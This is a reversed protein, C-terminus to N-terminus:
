SLGLRERMNRQCGWAESSEPEQWIGTQEGSVVDVLSARGRGLAVQEKANAYTNVTCHGKCDHDIGCGCGSGSWPNTSRHLWRDLGQRKLSGCVGGSM